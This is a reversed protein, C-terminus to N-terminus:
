SHESGQMLSVSMASQSYSRAHPASPAWDFAPLFLFRFPICPAGARLPRAPVVVAGGVGGGGGGCWWWKGVRVINGTIGFDWELGETGGRGGGLRRVQHTDEGRARRLVSRLVESHTDEPHQRDLFCVCRLVGMHTDEARAAEGLCGRLFFFFFDWLGQVRLGWCQGRVDQQILTQIHTHKLNM